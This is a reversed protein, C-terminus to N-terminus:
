CILYYALFKRSGIKDEVIPAISAFAIMNFIIHMFGGHVFMHTLLQWPRFMETRYNYLAFMQAFQDGLGLFGCFLTLIFIAVNILFLCRVMPTKILNELM